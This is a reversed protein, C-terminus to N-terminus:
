TSLCAISVIENEFLEPENLSYPPQQIAPPADLIQRITTLPMGFLRLFLIRQLRDVQAETYERYDNDPNRQASLLGTSDYYRLTRTSIGALAALQQITYVM